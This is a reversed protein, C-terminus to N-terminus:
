NNSLSKIVKYCLPQVPNQNQSMSWNKLFFKIRSGNLGGGGTAGKTRSNIDSRTLDSMTRLWSQSEFVVHLFTGHLENDEITLIKTKSFVSSMVIEQALTTGNLLDYLFCIDDGRHKLICSSSLQHFVLAVILGQVKDSGSKTPIHIATNRMKLIRM